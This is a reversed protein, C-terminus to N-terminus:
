PHFLFFDYIARSIHAMAHECEADDAEPSKM